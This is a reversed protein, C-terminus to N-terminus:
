LEGRGRKKPAVAPAVVGKATLDTAAEAVLIVTHQGGAGVQIIQKGNIKKSCASVDVPANEDEERGTGLQGLDGYGWAWLKGTTTVAFSSSSM